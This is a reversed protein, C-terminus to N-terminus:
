QGLDQQLQNISGDKSLDQYEQYTKVWDGTSLSERIGNFKPDNFLEQAAKQSAQPSLSSSRQILKAASQQDKAAQMIESMKIGKLKKASQDIKKDANPDGTKKAEIKKALENKVLKDSPTDNGTASRIANNIPFFFIVGLVLVVVIGLIVYFISKKKNRPKRHM